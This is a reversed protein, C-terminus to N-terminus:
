ESSEPKERWSATAMTSRSANRACVEVGRELHSIMVYPHKVTAFVLDADKRWLETGTALDWVFAPGVWEHILVQQHESITINRRWHHSRPYSREWIPEKWGLRWCIISKNTATIWHKGDPAVALDFAQRPLVRVTSSGASDDEAALSVVFVVDPRYGRGWLERKQHGQVLLHDDGLWNLRRIKGPLKIRRVVKWSNDASSRFVLESSNLDERDAPNEFTVLLQRQKSYLPAQSSPHGIGFPGHPFPGAKLKGSRLDWVRAESPSCSYCSQDDVRYEWVPGGNDFPETIARPKGQRLDWFQLQGSKPETVMFEGRSSFQPWTVGGDGGPSDTYASIPDDLWEGKSIDWLRIFDESQNVYVCLSRGPVFALWVYGKIPPQKGLPLGTEVDRLRFDEVHDETLLIKQDHSLGIIRVQVLDDRSWLKLLGPSAPERRGSEQGSLISALLLLGLCALLPAHKM